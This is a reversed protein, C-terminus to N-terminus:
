YNVYIIIPNHSGLRWPSGRQGSVVPFPSNRFGLRSSGRRKPVAPFYKERKADTTAHIHSCISVGIISCDDRRSCTPSSQKEILSDFLGALPRCLFHRLRAECLYRRTCPPSVLPPLERATTEECDILTRSLLTPHRV